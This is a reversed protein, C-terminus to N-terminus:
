VTLSYVTIRKKNVKNVAKTVTGDDVYAAIRSAVKNPTAGPIQAAIEGLTQPTDSLIGLLSNTIPDGAARKAAARERAKENKKDIAAIAKNCLDVVEANASMETKIINYLEKQIM